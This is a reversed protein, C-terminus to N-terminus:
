LKVRLTDFITWSVCRVDQCSLRPDYVLSLIIAQVRLFKKRLGINVNKIQPDARFGVMGRKHKGWYVATTYGAGEQQEM